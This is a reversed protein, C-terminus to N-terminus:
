SLPVRTLLRYANRTAASIQTFPDLHGLGVARFTDLLHWAGSVVIYSMLIPHNAGFRRAADTLQEDPEALADYAIWALNFGLLFREGIRM